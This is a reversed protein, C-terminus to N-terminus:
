VAAPTELLARPQHWPVAHALEQWSGNGLPFQSTAVSPLPFCLQGPILTTRAAKLGGACGCGPFTMGREMLVRLSPSPVVSGSIYARVESSGGWCWSGQALGVCVM